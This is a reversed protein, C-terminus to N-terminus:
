GGQELPGPAFVYVNVRYAKDPAGVKETGSLWTVPGIRVLAM